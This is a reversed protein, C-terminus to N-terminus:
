PTQATSAARTNMTARASGPCSRASFLGASGSTVYVVRAYPPFHPDLFTGTLLSFELLLSGASFASANGASGRDPPLQKEVWETHPGAHIRRRSHPILFTPISECKTAGSARDLHMRMWTRRRFHDWPNLATFYLTISTQVWDDTSVISAASRASKCASVMLTGALDHRHLRSRHNQTTPSVDALRHDLAPVTAAAIIRAADEGILGLILGDTYGGITPVCRASPRPRGVFPSQRTRQEGHRRACRLPEPPQGPDRLRVM